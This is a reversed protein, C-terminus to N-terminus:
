YYTRSVLLLSAAGYVLGVCNVLPLLPLGAIRFRHQRIALLGALLYPILYRGQVGPSSGFLVRGGEFAGDSLFLLGYIMFTAGAFVSALIIRDALSFPKSKSEALAFVLLLVLYIRRAWTPLGFMSWGFVGALQAGVRHSDALMRRIMGITLQLPHARLIALNASLDIGRELRATRFVNFIELDILQWSYVAALMALWVGGVFMWRQRKTKFSSYPILLLLPMAWLSTKCAGWLTFIIPIAVLLGPTTRRQRAFLVLAFGVLSLAITVADASTAAAEHLTMPMLAVAAILARFEPALRLAVILGALVFIVNGIRGAYMMAAPSWGMTRAIWIGASAPAYVFPFYFNAGLVAWRFYPHDPDDRVPAYPANIQHSASLEGAIEARTIKRRLDLAEPYRQAFAMMPAPLLPNPQGIIEGRSLQYARIFHGHEDNFQLPPIMVAFGIALIGALCATITASRNWPNGSSDPQNTDRLSNL